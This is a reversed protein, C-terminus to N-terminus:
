ECLDIGETEWFLVETESEHRAWKMDEESINWRLKLTELIDPIKQIGINM